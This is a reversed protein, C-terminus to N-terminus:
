SLIGKHVDLRQPDEAVDDLVLAERAPRRGVVDALRRGGLRDVAHLAMEADLQDVAGLPGEHQRGLALDAVLAEALHELQVVRDLGADARQPQLDGPQDAHRRDVRDPQVVHAAAHLVEHPLIGLGLDPQLVEARVLDVVGHEVALDVQADDGVRGGRGVQAHDRQTRLPHHQDARRVVRQGAASATM